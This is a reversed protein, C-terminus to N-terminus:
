IRFLLHLEGIEKLVEILKEKKNKNDVRWVVQKINENAQGLTGVTVFLYDRLIDFALKQIELPFTASFLLTQRNNNQLGGCLSVLDLVEDHFGMDLMRDAEDLILFKVSSLDIQLPSCLNSLLLKM